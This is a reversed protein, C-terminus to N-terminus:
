VAEGALIRAQLRATAGEPEVGLQEVLARRCELFQRLAHGRRGTRAYAVMLARHGDENLPDLAVLERSVDIARAHDGAQRHLEVLATLVAIYRDALRERYPAAWDEYRDEPLAEGRWLSRARQLLERRGEGREALGAEAAARFEEADVGDRDGLRLRYSREAHEIASDAGPVDLVKRARSIAVQLSRRAKAASLEPWIAEFLLDESVPKGANTVLFRVLKADVPRAWASHSIERGGRVVRFGGLLEFRLPPPDARVRERAAVAAAAVQEDADGSLEDLRFLVAPHDSALAATLAAARVAPQPHDAFAALAEAGPFAAALAPLALEPEIDGRALADAVVPRLQDWHARAVQSARDGAEELCRRLTGAAAEREGSEHELWARAALLRARHYRGAAGPFHEDLTSVADGIAGAARDAEGNRALVVAMDLAAWVRYCVLGPRVRALAREAAAVAQAADGRASAVMAEAVPRSVGRWGTGPRSGARELQAGAEGARGQRALLSARQLQADRAVFGLGLRNAARESRQFLEMAEEVEGIDLLVQATVSLAVPLRGQPDSLELDAITERLGVLAEEAGGAALEVMLRALDDLYRFRAAPKADRRLRQALREAEDRRGLGTLALVTYWAVGAAGAHGDPAEPGDWGRALDVIAEFEGASFLAEALFFRALWERQADGAERHGAVAARLPAVAREHQGAGWELQGQLTRIAPEESVSEPLRGLWRSMLEPSTRLLRPGEREIALVAEPWREAELWHDIAAMAGAGEAVAPAVAAHLERREDDTCRTRLRELLFERLLPHYAFAGSDDLRRLPMGARELRDEFDDPLGLARAVRSDVSRAVSSRIAAAALEPELSDLLEESLYEHLDPAGSLAALGGAAGREVLRATLAVGLPWGETAELVTEVEEASPERGLRGRLLAACEEADFVLDAPGFEALQGAARPKAVRLDLGRRSAVALHLHPIEARILESLV